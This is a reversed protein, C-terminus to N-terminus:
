HTTGGGDLVFRDLEERRYLVRGGDHHVCLGGTSTLKRIRSLRCDLYVAASEANLWPSLSPQAVLEAVRQAIREVDEDELSLRM